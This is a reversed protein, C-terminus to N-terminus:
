TSSPSVIVADVLLQLDILWRHTEASRLTLTYVVTLAFTLGLLASFEALPLAGPSTVQILVASGLLVSIVAARATILSLLKRRITTSMAPAGIPM